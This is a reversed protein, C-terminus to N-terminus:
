YTAREIRAPSVLKDATDVAEAVAEVVGTAVVAEAVVIMAPIVPRRTAAGASAATSPTM